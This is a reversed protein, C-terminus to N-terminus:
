SLYQRCYKALPALREAWSTLSDAVRDARVDDRISYNHHITIARIARDCLNLARVGANHAEGVVPSRDDNITDYIISLSKHIESLEPKSYVANAPVNKGRGKAALKGISATVRDALAPLDYVSAKVAVGNAKAASVVAKQKANM